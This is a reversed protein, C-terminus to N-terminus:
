IGCMEDDWVCVVCIVCVVCAVCMDYMGFRVQLCTLMAADIYDKEPTKTYFVDVPYQRGPIRM